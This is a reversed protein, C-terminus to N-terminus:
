VTRREVEAERRHHRCISYRRTACRRARTLARPYEYNGTIQPGCGDGVHPQDM